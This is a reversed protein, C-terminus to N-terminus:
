CERMCFGERSKLIADAAQQASKSSYETMIKILIM